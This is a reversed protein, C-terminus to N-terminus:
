DAPTWEGALVVKAGNGMAMIIRSLCPRCWNTPPSEAEPHGFYVQVLVAAEHGCEECLRDETEALKETAQM